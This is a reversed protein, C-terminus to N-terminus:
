RSSTRSPRAGASARARAMAVDPTATSKEPIVTISDSAPSHSTGFWAIREIASPAIRTTATEMSADAVSSGASIASIFRRATAGPRNAPASPRRARSTKRRRSKQARQVRRTMRRGTSDSSSAAATSRPSAAGVSDSSVPTPEVRWNGASASAITPALAATRALSGPADLGTCTSTRARPPPGSSSVARRRTRRRTARSGATARAALGTRARSPREARIVAM